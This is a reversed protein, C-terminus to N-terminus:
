LYYMREQFVMLFYFDSFKLVLHYLSLSSIHQIVVWYPRQTCRGHFGFCVFFFFSFSTKYFFYVLSSFLVSGQGSYTRLPPVILIHSITARHYKSQEIIFCQKPSTFINFRGGRGLVGRRGSPPSNPFCFLRIFFKVLM